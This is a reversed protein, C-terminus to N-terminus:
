SELFDFVKKWFETDQETLKNWDYSNKFAQKQEDTKLKKKRKAKSYDAFFADKLKVAEATFNPNHRKGDVELFVTNPRNGLASRMKEFHSFACTPDDKSHVILAKAGSLTLSLRADAYAYAGFAEEEMKFLLPEYSAFTGLVGALMDRVSVFGSLAVIHTIDKHFASINLTSFAGWSHGVVSLSKGDVKGSAKLARIAHDLDSLSQAFGGIHEGESELTGTHDYTFVTYGAECITAIERMYSIHGNGMGHDFIVLREPRTPNKEYFRGKLLQGKDGKFEFKTFSLGFDEPCFYFVAGDPDHRVLLTSAFTKKVSNEFLM